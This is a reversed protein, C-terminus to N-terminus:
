DHRQETRYSWQYLWEAEVLGEEINGPRNTAQPSGNGDCRENSSSDTVLNANRARDPHRRALEDGLEGGRVALRVSQEDDRVGLDDFEKM